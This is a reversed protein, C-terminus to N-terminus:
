RPGPMAPLRRGAREVLAVFDEEGMTVSADPVFGVQTVAAGDRVVGMLFSVSADDSLETTVHWVSLDRDAAEQHAIRRVESGLDDDPCAAM